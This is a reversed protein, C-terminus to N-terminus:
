LDVIGGLLMGLIWTALLYLGMTALVMVPIFRMGEKITGKRIISIIFGSFMSTMFLTTFSFIRFDGKSIAESSTDIAFSMGSVGGEPSNAAM